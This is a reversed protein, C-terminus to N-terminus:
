TGREDKQRSILVQSSMPTFRNESRPLDIVERRAM